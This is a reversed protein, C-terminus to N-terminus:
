QTRIDRFYTKWVDILNANNEYSDKFIHGDQNPLILTLSNAGTNKKDKSIANVFDNIPVPFNEYGNYNKKLLGHMHKFHTETSVGINSATFNAMDMGITVAIGHPIAFNTAAEIAHGFSHGYNFINRINQDFEDIEIFHKKIELARFIYHSLTKKNIRAEDYDSAIANFSDQGDIIHVKIIEGLGSCIEREDLTDLFRSDIFIKEPPTFTGLINKAGGCNISSKSGICSDSQALLTTPIFHWPIGRLLTASLFCTIDQIIGGGIAILTHNRRVGKSVLHDVYAPMKELSKNEEHADIKLVSPASLLKKLKDAHLAAVHSDVLIHSSNLIDPEIDELAQDNFHATYTGKYSKIKLHKSVPLAVM